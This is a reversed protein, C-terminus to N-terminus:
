VLEVWLGRWEDDLKVYQSVEEFWKRGAIDIMFGKWRPTPLPTIVHETNSAICIELAWHAAGSRDYVGNTHEDCWAEWAPRCPTPKKYLRANRKIMSVM